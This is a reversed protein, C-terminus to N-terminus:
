SQRRSCRWISAESRLAESSDTLYEVASSYMTQASSYICTLSYAFRRGRRGSPPMAPLGTAQKAAPKSHHGAEAPAAGEPENSHGTKSKRGAKRSSALGQRGGSKRSERYFRRAM